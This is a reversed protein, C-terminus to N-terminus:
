SLLSYLFLCVCCENVKNLLNLYCIKISSQIQSKIQVFLSCKKYDVLRLHMAVLISSWIHLQSLLFNFGNFLWWEYCM